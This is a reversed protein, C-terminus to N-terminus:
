EGLGVAAVAERRDHFWQLRVVKGDRLTWLHPQDQTFAVGDPSTKAIFTTFCL